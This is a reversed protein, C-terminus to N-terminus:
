IPILFIPFVITIRTQMIPLVAMEMLTTLIMMQPIEIIQFAMVTKMEGFVIPLLEVTKTSPLKM